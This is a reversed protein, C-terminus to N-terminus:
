FVVGIVGREKWGWNVKVRNGWKVRVQNGQLPDKRVRKNMLKFHRMHQTDTVYSEVLFCPFFEFVVNFNIVVDARGTFEEQSNKDAIFKITQKVLILWEISIKREVRENRKRMRLIDRRCVFLLILMLWIIRWEHVWFIMLWVISKHRILQSWFRFCSFNKWRVRETLFGRM